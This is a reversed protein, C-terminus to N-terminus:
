AYQLEIFLGTAIDRTLRIGILPPDFLVNKGIEEFM